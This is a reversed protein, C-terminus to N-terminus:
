IADFFTVISQFRIILAKRARRTSGRSVITISAEGLLAGYLYGECSLCIALLPREDSAARARARWRQPM